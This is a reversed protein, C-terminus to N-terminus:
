LRRAPHGLTLLPSALTPLMYSAIETGSPSTKAGKATEYLSQSEYEFHLTIYVSTGSYAIAM